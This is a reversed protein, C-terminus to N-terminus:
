SVVVSMRGGRWALMVDSSSLLYYHVNCLVATTNLSHGAFLPTWVNM